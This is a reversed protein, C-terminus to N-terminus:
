NQGAGPSVAQPPAMQRRLEGSAQDIVYRHSAEVSEFESVAGGPWEVTVSAQTAKGVGFHQEKPHMTLYGESGRVERWIRYGEPTRVLIRAGIADRSSGKAPDGVLKIRLWHNRLAEANNRYVVADAHYNNLVMDQDGDGDLDLYAVARSNGLLDAGSLASVNSLKGGANLFFVNSEKSDEPLLVDRAKGEPDVYYPNEASYVAFENMGNAVYLDEDGDNDVDLFSAGWAWGTSSRGRGIATSLRYASLKGDAAKSLFLDNAEVIRMKAMKRADLAAPTDEGPLVYKQDKDMTVINSIYVDPFLDDNLDALGVNMTYSPKDTGLVPAFDVFKGGGLNRYYANVGFDNGVILDQRGDRDFDTHALAQTWGRNDVGSGSTIDRFRMGGLNRFLQNPLGNINRRALTPKIGQTYLGFNGVYLDLLGDGDFDAATAPGGVTGKGGLGASATVDQFKGGGLGRYLRHDDDVYSIFIDQHGDNDFDAIIPQRPEGPRGDEKRRWDLGAAVTVDQFRGGGTNRYLRNGLGSLLLVDPLGDGDVDEAAVGSGGFAPPVALVAVNKDRITYSRILRHLWDASSHRFAIGSAATVDAFYRPTSAPAGRSAGASHLDSSALQDADDGPGEPPDSPKRPPAHNRQIRARIEQAAVGIHQRGLAPAGQRAAAEGAVRLLLVGFQAINEVLLEAAFPDAELTPRFSPEDLAAELYRWHLGSDRFADMDYSEIQVREGPPLAPFFTADEYENITHPIFLKAFGAVDDVRIADHKRLEARKQCGAYLDLAFFVMAETFTAKLAQSAAADKPWRYRAFYVQINRLFVPTSIKNYVEYSALKQAIIRRLLAMNAPTAPTAPDATATGPEPAPAEVAPVHGVVQKWSAELAAATIEYADGLRAAQDAKQLVALTVIDVVRKLEQVAPGTLPLFRPDPALLLDQQVGLVARLAYAISSYQRLDDFALSIPPQGPVTVSTDKAADEALGLYGAAAQRIAEASAEAPRDAGEPATSADLWLRRILGKQLDVKRHRAETTLPTGYMFDELRSATAYCKPDRVSELAGIAEVVPKVGLTEQLDPAEARAPDPALTAVALAVLGLAGPIQKHISTM